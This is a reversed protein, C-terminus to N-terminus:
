IAGGTLDVPKAALADRSVGDGRGEKGHCLSCNILYLSKGAAAATELDSLPNRTEGTVVMDTLASNSSKLSCAIGAVAAGTIIFTLSLKLLRSSISSHGFKIFRHHM